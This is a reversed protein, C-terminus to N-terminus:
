GPNTDQFASIKRFVPRGCWLLVGGAIVLGGLSVSELPNSFGGGALKLWVSGSCVRKGNDEHFGSLKVKLGGLVSPFNYSHHGTNAYKVSSGHWSKISAAGIPLDIKVHGNIQRRPGPVGVKAGHESGAWKITDKLPVTIVDSPTHNTSIETFNTTVWHGAGACAGPPTVVDASAPGAWFLAAGTTLVVAVGRGIWAMSM